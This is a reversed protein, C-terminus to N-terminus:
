SSPPAKALCGSWHRPAALLPHAATSLGTPFHM